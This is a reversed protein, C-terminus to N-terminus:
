SAAHSVGLGRGVGLFRGEASRRRGLLIVLPRTFFYATFVDLLTSLGLFFAFGRVDGVTLWYLILAAAFSSFDATLITKYARNFGRDVSSRVTRGSRVEEKLREFYVVYSDATVGISVIIGIVGSLTLTLGQTQSLLTVISYLLAGSTSLGLIVVLGLTRYYVILYLLVLAIAVVGAILGARLSADGITASVTQVSQPVFRVPLSGYTLARALNTAQAQTFPASSNSITAGNPYSAAQIVPASYVEDDLDIAQYAGVSQGPVAYTPSKENQAYVAYHEAAYQNFLKAGSSTFSIDVEWENTQSNVSATASKIIKGTMEAPGLFWRENPTGFQPAIVPQNPTDQSVPTTPISSSASSSCIAEVEQAAQSAQSVTTSPSAASSAPTAVTTSPTGAAQLSSDPFTASALKPNLHELPGAGTKATTSPAKVAPPATTSAGTTSASTSASSGAATTSSAGSGTTTTSTPATTTTSATSKTPAVYGAIPCYVPRFFLQATEGIVSLAQQANKIGPMEISIDNGQRTVNANSVGLNDVRNQMILMAQDLVSSNVKGQPQEIVSLGGKLDLGLLPTSSTAFTAILGAVAILLVAALSTVLPRRRM